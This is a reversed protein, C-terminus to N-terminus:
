YGPLPYVTLLGLDSSIVIFLITEGKTGIITSSRIFFEGTPNGTTQSIGETYSLVDGDNLVTKVINVAEASSQVNFKSYGGSANSLHKNKVFIEGSNKFDDLLQLLNLKSSTNPVANNTANNLCYESFSANLKDLSVKYMLVQIVLLILDPLVYGFIYMNSFGSKSLLDVQNLISIVQLIIGISQMLLSIIQLFLGFGTSAGVLKIGTALLVGAAIFIWFLPHTFMDIYKAGSAKLGDLFTYSANKSTIELMIRSIFDDYTASEKMFILLQDATFVGTEILDACLKLVEIQQNGYKSSEPTLLNADAYTLGTETVIMIIEDTNKTNGPKSTNLKYIIDKTFEKFTYPGNLDPHDRVYYLGSVKEVVYGNIRQINSSGNGDDVAYNHGSPDINNVGDNAVFAYLHHSIVDGVSGRYTDESIFRTDEQNYYRARLYQLNFNDEVEGNYGLKDIRESSKILTNSYNAGQVSYENIVYKNQSIEAMISNKHSLVNITLVKKEQTLVPRNGDYLYQQNSNGKIELLLENEVTLDNVYEFRNIDANDSLYNSTKDCSLNSELSERLTQTDSPKDFRSIDERIFKQLEARLTSKTEQVIGEENEVQYPTITTKDIRNGLGDYSFEEIYGSDSTISILQNFIDYKYKLVENSNSQKILNGNSDYEYNTKVDGDIVYDIQGSTNSVEERVTTKGDTEIEVRERNNLIDFGYTYKTYSTKNNDTTVYKATVLQGLEDYTYSKDIILHSDSEESTGEENPKATTRTERSIRGSKTYEYVVSSILVQNKMYEIKTVQNNANYTSTTTVNNPMSEIIRNGVADYTYNIVEGDKTVLKVLQNLADYEFTVVGGDSYTMSTKNGYSDYTYKVTNGNEDTTKIIDDFQNYEFGTKGNSNLTQSVEVLNALENYKNTIIVENTITKTVLNMNNYEFRIQDKDPNTQVVVQNRLNYDYELVKDGPNTVSVLNNMDDYKYEYIAKSARSTELLNHVGDYKYSTINEKADEVKIMNGFADYEYTTINGEADIDKVKNVADYEIFVSNGLGDINEINRGLEDYVSSTINGNADKTSIQHNLADYTYTTEYGLANTQSINNGNLDYEYSTTRQNNVTSSITKGVEDYVFTTQNGRVDVSSIVQGISNFEQTSSNGNKDITKVQRTNTTDYIFETQNNNADIEIIANHYQDYVTKSIVGLSDEVKVLDGVNNYTNTTKNGNSDKQTVVQDFENYVYYTKNDNADTTATLNGRIDYVNKTILKGDILQELVRGDIDYKQTSEVGNGDVTKIVQNNIDYEQTSKFGLEDVTSINRYVEDYEYSKVNGLADTVTIINGLADYTTNTSNGNADIVTIAQNLANYLTSTTAGNALTTKVVNGNNDYTTTTTQGLDNTNTIQRGMNDYTYSTTAGYIDITSLVKGAGSYITSSNNGYTDTKSVEQGKADYTTTTFNGDFNTTKVLRGYMDYEYSTTRKNQDTKSKLQGSEYYKYTTSNGINDSSYILNNEIDYENDTTVGNREVVKIINGVEDYTTLKVTMDPYIVKIEQNRLDYEHTTIRGLADEESLVNGNYDYTFNTEQGYADIKTIIQNKANYINQKINGLADTVAIVRGTEDNTFSISNGNADYVVKMQGNPYYETKQTLVGGIYTEVIRGDLDYKNETIVGDADTSSLVVNNPGYVTTSSNGLEDINKFVNGALDYVQSTTKEGTTSSVTRGMSDFTSSSALGLRDVSSELLGNAQYTTSSSIKGNVVTQITKGFEDYKYETKLGLANYSAVLKNFEDYESTSIVGLNDGSKITNGFGDYVTYTVNGNPLQTQILRNQEDYVFKTVNGLQDTESIKNYNNDYEYSVTGYVTSAEILHMLQDYKFNATYGNRDQKAVMNGDADYQYHESNNYPDIVQVLEGRKNRIYTYTGGFENTETKVFGNEDYTYSTTYGLPSTKSVLNNNADYNYLYAAGDPETQKSILGATNYEYSTTGGYINTSSVKQNNQNYTITLGKNNDSASVINGFEDYTITSIVGKPSITSVLKNGDYIYQTTLSKEPEKEDYTTESIRNHNDDYTYEVVSGNDIVKTTYGYSNYYISKNNGNNDTTVTHDDFYALESINGLGDTQKIVRDDKDYENKIILKNANDYYATMLYPNSKSEYKYTIVYGEQDIYKVLNGKTDYEYSTSTNNPYNISSIYGADNYNINVVKGSPTTYSTIYLKNNTFTYTKNDSTVIKELLLYDNFYYKVGLNTTILHLYKTTKVETTVPTQKYFPIYYDTPEVHTYVGDEVRQYTYGGDFSPNFTEDSNKEMVFGRGSEDAFMATGNNLFQLKADFISSWNRGFNSDVGDAMANYYRTIDLANDQEYIRSDNTSYVFNGTNLNIPEFGFECHKNNGLLSKDILMKDYDTLPEAQIYATGANQKPNRIFLRNNETILPSKMNNDLYSQSYLPESSRGYYNLIRQFTEFNYSVTYIQFQDGNIWDTTIDPDAKPDTAKVRVQYLKDAAYDKTTILAEVQYNSEVEYYSQVDALNHEYYPYAYTERAPLKTEGSNVVTGSEVEFIEYKVTGQYATLGDLGIAVNVVSGEQDNSTFARLNVKTQDIPYDQAAFNPLEKYVLEIYPKFYSGQTASAFFYDFQQTSIKLIQNDPNPNREWMALANTVDFGIAGGTPEFTWPLQTQTANIGMAPQFQLGTSAYFSSWSLANRDLYGATLVAVDYTITSSYTQARNYMYTGTGFSKAMFEEISMGATDWSYGTSGAGLPAMYLTAKEIAVTGRSRISGNADTTMEGELQTKYQAYNNHDEYFGINLTAENYVGAYADIASGIRVYSENTGCPTKASPTGAPYTCDVNNFRIGRLYNNPLKSSYPGIGTAYTIRIPVDEDLEGIVQTNYTTKTSSMQTSDDIDYVANAAVTGDEVGPLLLKIVEESAGISPNYMILSEDKKNKVSLIPASDEVTSDKILEFTEDSTITRVEVVSSVTRDFLDKIVLLHGDEVYFTFIIGNDGLYGVRDEKIALISLNVDQVYYEFDVGAETYVLPKDKNIEKSFVIDNIVTKTNNIIRSDVKEEIYTGDKQLELTPIGYNLAIIEGTDPHSFVQISETNNEVEEIYGQEILEDSRQIITPNAENFAELADKVDADYNAITVNNVIAQQYIDSESVKAGEEFHPNNGSLANVKISDFKFDSIIQILSAFALLIVLKKKM